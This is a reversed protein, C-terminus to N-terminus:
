QDDAVSEDMLDERISEQSETGAVTPNVAEDSSGIDDPLSKATDPNEENCAESELVDAINQQLFTPLKSDDLNEFEKLTPMDSLKELGFVELFRKTSGFLFPRGAINKRGLIKILNRELLNKIVGGSDVGRIKDVEARIIPQKYVIIALTEMTSQTLRFPKSKKLKKVWVAYNPRTRFQYGGAVEQLYFGRQRNKNDKNIEEIAERITGTSIQEHSTEEIIQKIKQISLPADAAFVLADIIPRLEDANM